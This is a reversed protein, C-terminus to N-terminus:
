QPVEENFSAAKIIRRLEDNPCPSFIRKTVTGDLGIHHCCIDDGLASLFGFSVDASEIDRTMLLDNQAQPICVGKDIRTRHDKLGDIIIDDQLAGDQVLAMHALAYRRDPLIQIDLYRTQDDEDTNSYLGIKKLAPPKSAQNPHIFESTTLGIRELYGEMRCARVLLPHTYKMYLDFVKWVTLNSDTNGKLFTRINPGCFPANGGDSNYFWHEPYESLLGRQNATDLTRLVHEAYKVVSGSVKAYDDFILLRLQAKYFSSYADEPYITYTM